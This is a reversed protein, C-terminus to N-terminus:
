HLTYSVHTICTCLLTVGPTMVCDLWAQALDKLEAVEHCKQTTSVKTHHLGQFILGHSHPAPSSTPGALFTALFAALPSPPFHSASLRWACVTPQAVPTLSSCALGMDCVYM